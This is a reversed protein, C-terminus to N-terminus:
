CSNSLRLSSLCVRDKGAAKWAEVHQTAIKDLAAKNEESIDDSLYLLCAVDNIVDGAEEVNMLPKPHWPFDNGEPDSSVAGRGNANIVKGTNPDVIAFHPIGEVEYLESM